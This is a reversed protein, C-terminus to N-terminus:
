DRRRKIGSTDKETEIEWDLYETEDDEEEAGPRTNIPKTKGPQQPKGLVPNSVKIINENSEDTRPEEENDSEDDWDLYETEEDEAGEYEPIDRWDEPEQVLYIPGFEKELADKVEQKRHESRRFDSKVQRKASEFNYEDITGTIQYHLNFFGKKRAKVPRLNSDHRKFRNALVQGANVKLNYKIENDFSHEGNVTLNLANSRIFMAPIYLRQKRIELFNEMNTFRIDRLDKVNVFTAFQELMEFNKLAGDTIGFGTLVRLKDRLFNGGQDWYANILIKAELTGDVHKHTLVDQGFNEAQRFFEKVDISECALKATLYPENKFFVRGDLDFDGGMATTQGAIMMEGNDFELKGIFNEGEIENYNFEKITANFTGKFLHTALERKQINATKISDVVPESEQAEAESIAFYKLLRDIDLEDSQLDAQFELEVKRSNLSDKFLVPIVNYALGNFQLETGAGEVKIGNIDLTNDQLTLKGRDITLREDNITLSADDFELEGGAKVRAIRSTSIMDEYRGKLMINKFEIEGRGNTIKPNNLLGYAVDLPIVGDVLFDIDPDDFNDVQLDFEFLERNFYGKFDKVEFSSSSNKKYHGNTYKAFFSVDKLAGDLRPSTLRGNDMTLEVNIEPAQKATTKGKISAEFVFNGNSDFDQLNKLYEKPLSQLISGLNSRKSSVFLDLYTAKDEWSEVVGDVSFQNKEVELDFSEIEYTKKELDVKIKADYGVDKNVLYWKGDIEIAKSLFAADSTLAFKRSSFEGSFNADDIRASIDNQSRADAYRVNVNKLRATKLSITPGGSGKEKPKKQETTKFINYNAQGNRDITINAMADSLVVSKVNIKSSLLSLMGFRFSLNSAELLTGEDSGRLEIGRMNASVNPFTTIIGLDFKDISLETEIQKNVETILKRGIDDEFIATLIAGIALLAVFFVAGIILLRKAFKKM